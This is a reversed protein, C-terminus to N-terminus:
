PKTYMFYFAALCFSLGMFNRLWKPIKTIEDWISKWQISKIFELLHDFFTWM